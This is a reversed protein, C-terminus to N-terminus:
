NMPNVVDKRKLLAGDTGKTFFFSSPLTATVTGITTGVRRCWSLMDRVSSDEIGSSEMEVVLIRLGSEAVSCAETESLM